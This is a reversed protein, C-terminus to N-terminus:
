LKALAEAAANKVAPNKDNAAAEELAPRAREVGLKGLWECAWRRMEPTNHQKLIGILENVGNRTDKLAYMTQEAMQRINLHNSRLFITMMQVSKRSFTVDTMQNLTLAAICRVRMDNEDRVEVGTPNFISNLVANRAQFAKFSALAPVLALRVRWDPDGTLDRLSEVSDPAGLRGLTEIAAIRTPVDETRLLDMLPEVAQQRCAKSIQKIAEARATTDPSKLAALDRKLTESPADTLSACQEYLPLSKLAAPQASVRTILLLVWTCSVLVAFLTKRSNM